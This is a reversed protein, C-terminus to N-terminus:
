LKEIIMKKRMITEEIRKIYVTVDKANPVREIRDEASFYLKTVAGAGFGWITQKEGMMQINYICEKGDKAYGVNELNGVMYKQRYLYYPVMGIKRIWRRCVALMEEAIDDHTLPYKELSDKLRSARKVALTHVTINDPDLSALSAMTKEMHSINENPLGVIVDMNICDFGSERAMHFSSIIQEVTHARGIEDLTEQNMSQPNISIRNVGFAKLTALKNVDLSDPRGCEVTYERIKHGDTLLKVASMLRELQSHTLATPTGGGIYISQIKTGRKNLAGIIQELELILCDLYSDAINSKGNMVVSPFSCYLCKTPCFPIHIYVSVVDDRNAKLINRQNNATELLLEAKEQKIMYESSLIDLVETDSLGEDMLNHVVKLPRVGTLIGWYPRNGTHEALLDYICQCVIRKIARKKELVSDKINKELKKRRIKYGLVEDPKIELQSYVEIEWDNIYKYRATLLYDGPRYEQVPKEDSETYLVKVEGDPFFIRTLEWIVHGFQGNPLSIFVNL